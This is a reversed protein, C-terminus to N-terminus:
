GHKYQKNYPSYRHSFIKSNAETRLERMSDMLLRSVGWAPPALVGSLWEVISVSLSSSSPVMVGDDLHVVGALLVRLEELYFLFVCLCFVSVLAARMRSPLSPSLKFKNERQREKPSSTYTHKWSCLRPQHPQLFDLHLESNLDASSVKGPDKHLTKILVTRSLTRITHKRSVQYQLYMCHKKAM